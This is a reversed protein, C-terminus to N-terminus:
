GFNRPLWDRRDEPHFHSGSNLPVSNKWSTLLKNSPKMSIHVVRRYQEYSGCM